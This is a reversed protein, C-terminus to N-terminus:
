KQIPKTHVEHQVSQGDLSRKNTLSYEEMDNEFARCGERRTDIHQVIGDCLTISPIKTNQGRVCKTCDM